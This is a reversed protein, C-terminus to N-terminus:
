QLIGMKLKVARIPFPLPTTVGTMRTAKSMGTMSHYKESSIRIKLVEIGTLMLGLRVLMTM